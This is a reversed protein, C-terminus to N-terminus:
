NVWEGDYQSSLINDCTSNINATNIIMTDGSKWMKLEAKYKKVQKKLQEVQKKLQDNESQLNNVFGYKDNCRPCSGPSLQHRTLGCYECRYSDSM